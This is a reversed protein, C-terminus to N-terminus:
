PFQHQTCWRQHKQSIATQMHLVLMYILNRMKHCLAILRQTGMVNMEVSIRLAEDFKVTAACHFVIGVEDCIRNMDLQNLGLGEEMLDGCVPILKSLASPNEERLRDFLPGELIKQLRQKPGLDRKPRIILFINKLKPASYLLKEVLVKGLFGSAGTVLVCQDAFTDAVRRGVEM